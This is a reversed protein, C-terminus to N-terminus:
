RRDGTTVTIAALTSRISVTHPNIAVHTCAWAVTGIVLPTPATEAATLLLPSMLEPATGDDDAVTFGTGDTGALPVAGTADVDMAGADDAATAEPEVENDEAPRPEEAMEVVAPGPEEVMEVVAPGPEEVMEVVAPGPEEVTEMVAPDLADVVEPEEPGELVDDL